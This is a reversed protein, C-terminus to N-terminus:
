DLVLVFAQEAEGHVSDFVFIHVTKLGEPIKVDSLSRTFPQEDVHPHHLIRTGLVEGTPSRIEWKNAYHEWGEDSHRVAVDFACIKEPTCRSIASVVEPKGALAPLPAALAAFILASLLTSAHGLSSLVKSQRNPHM